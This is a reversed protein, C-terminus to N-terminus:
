TDIVASQLQAVLDGATVRKLNDSYMQEGYLAYAMSGEPMKMEGRYIAALCPGTIYPSSDGIMEAVEGCDIIRHYFSQLSEDQKRHYVMQRGDCLRVVVTRSRAAAHLGALEWLTPRNGSQFYRFFDSCLRGIGRKHRQVNHYTDQVTLHVDMWFMQKKDLDVVMPITVRSKGQLDFRQEVTRADFIDGFVDNRTMFGAFGRPLLEFPINNYSLVSMVAYRIGAGQFEDINLDIFESAGEPAPASTFDGSHLAEGSGFSFNTYDCRGRFRWDADYFAVSLDLDVRMATPQMWHVFLRLCKGDTLPVISGRPIAVLARAATRENFPILLQALRVDVLSVHYHSQQEARRLLEREICDVLMTTMVAPLAVRADQTAWSLTVEGKPFFVRKSLPRSRGRLHAALVLLIPSAMRHVANEFASVVCEQQDSGCRTAVRLLHDLRRSFEGPRQQLMQLAVKTDGIFLAEEVRSTWSRFIFRSGFRHVHSGHIEATRCLLKGFMTNPDVETQRVVAFALAARPFRQAFEFPHLIEAAHKWWSHHRELDETLSPFACSNLIQLLSKRLARPMSVFKAPKELLDAQGNSYVALLRLVDMATDLHQALVPLLMPPVSLDRLLQGLIQAKTEKVPIREPLWDTVIERCNTIIIKLDDVDSKSLPITREVLQSFLIKTAEHLDVGLDLRKLRVYETCNPTPTRPLTPQLFPTRSNIKRNCIPCASYNTGDFCHGCVLHGCPALPHTEDDKGCLLCPQGPRQYYLVLLRKVYLEWTNKPIGDPFHRFLPEHNQHAGLQVSLTEFLLKNVHALKVATLQGLATHLSASVVYGLDLLQTELGALVHPHVLTEATPRPLFVLSSRKLLIQKVQEM